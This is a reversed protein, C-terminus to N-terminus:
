VQSAEERVGPAPQRRSANNCYGISLQGNWSAGIPAKRHDGLKEAQERTQSLGGGSRLSTLRLMPSAASRFIRQFRQVPDKKHELVLM